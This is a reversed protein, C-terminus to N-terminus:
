ESVDIIQSTANAEKNQEIERNDPRKIEVSVEQLDTDGNRRDENVLIVLIRIV